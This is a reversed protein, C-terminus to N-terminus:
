ALQLAATAPFAPPDTVWELIGAAALEKETELQWEYFNDYVLKSQTSSESPKSVTPMTSLQLNVTPKIPTNCLSSKTRLHLTHRIVHTSIIVVLTSQNWATNLNIELCNSNSGYYFLM